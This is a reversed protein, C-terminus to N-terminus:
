VRAHRVQPRAIMADLMRILRNWGHALLSRRVAGAGCEPCRAPTARLDYGCDECQGRDRRRRRTAARYRKAGLWLLPSGCVALLLWYPLAVTAFSMRFAPTAPAGTLTMVHGWAGAGLVAYRWRGAETARTMGSPTPLPYDGRIFATRHPFPQSTVFYNVALADASATLCVTTMGRMHIVGYNYRGLWAWMVASGVCLVVAAAAAANLLVRRIQGRRRM